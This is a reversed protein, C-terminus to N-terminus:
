PAPEAACISGGAFMPGAVPPKWQVRVDEIPLDFAISVSNALATLAERVQADPYEHQAQVTVMPCHGAFRAPRTGMHMAEVAIFQAWVDRAPCQLSGALSEVAAALCMDVREAESPRLAHIHIVTM